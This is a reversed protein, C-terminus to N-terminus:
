EPQIYLRERGGFGVLTGQKSHGAFLFDPTDAHDIIVQWQSPAGNLIEEILEGDNFYVLELLDQKGMVKM